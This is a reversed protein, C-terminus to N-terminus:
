AVTAAKMTRCRSSRPTPWPAVTKAAKARHDDEGPQDGAVQGVPEPRRPHRDAGASTSAAPSTAIASASLRGTASSPPIAIPAAKESSLGESISIATPRTESVARPAAIPM